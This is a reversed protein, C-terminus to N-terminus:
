NEDTLSKIIKTLEKFDNSALLAEIEDVEFIPTVNSSRHYLPMDRDSNMRKCVQRGTILPHQILAAVAKSQEIKKLM